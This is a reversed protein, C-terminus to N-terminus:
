EKITEGFHRDAAQFISQQTKLSPIINHLSQRKLRFSVIDDDEIDRSSRLVAKEFPRPVDAFVSHLYGCGRHFRAAVNHQPTAVSYKVPL